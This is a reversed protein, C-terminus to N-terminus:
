VVVNLKSLYNDEMKRFRLGPTPPAQLRPRASRPRRPHRPLRRHPPPHGAGSAAAQVGAVVQSAAVAGGRLLGPHHHHHHHHHHHVSLPTQPHRQPTPDTGVPHHVLAPALCQRLDPSVTLLDLVTQQEFRQTRALISVFHVVVVQNAHVWVGMCGCGWAGVWAVM